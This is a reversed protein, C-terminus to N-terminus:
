SDFWPRLPSSRREPILGPDGANCAIEKGASSGPFGMKVGPTFLYNITPIREKYIGENIFQPLFIM